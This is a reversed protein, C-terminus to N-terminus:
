IGSISIGAGLLMSPWTGSSLPLLFLRQEWRITTLFIKELNIFPWKYFIRMKYFSSIRRGEVRRKQVISVFLMLQSRPRHRFPATPVTADSGSPHSSTLQWLGLVSLLNNMLGHLVRFNLLPLSSIQVWPSTPHAPLPLGLFPSIQTLPFGSCLWTTHPMPYALPLPM